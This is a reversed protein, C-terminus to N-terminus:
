KKMMHPKIEQVVVFIILRNTVSRLCKNQFFLPSNCNDNCVFHFSMRLRLVLHFYATLRLRLRVGRVIILVSFVSNPKPTGTLLKVM